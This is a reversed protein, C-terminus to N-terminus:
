DDVTFEAGKGVAKRFEVAIQKVDGVTVPADVTGVHM